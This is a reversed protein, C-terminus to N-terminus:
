ARALVIVGAVTLMVGLLVRAGFREERLFLSSLALTFVPYTAVLPSVVAVPHRALAAYTALIGAGNCAGVAVFWLVGRRNFPAADLLGAASHGIQRLAIFALLPGIGSVFLLPRVIRQYPRRLAAAAILVLM